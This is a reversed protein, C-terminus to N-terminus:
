AKRTLIRLLPYRQTGPDYSVLVYIEDILRTDFIMMGLVASLRDAPLMCEDVHVLLVYWSYPGGSVNEPKDKGAVLKRFSLQLEDDPWLAFVNQGRKTKEIAQQNVLETIEIGWIEGTTMNLQYDPALHEYGGPHQMESAIVSGHEKEFEEKFKQVVGWEKIGKEPWDFYDAYGRRKAIAESLLRGVADRDM